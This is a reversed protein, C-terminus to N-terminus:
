ITRKEHQILNIKLNQRIRSRNDRIQQIQSGKALSINKMFSELNKTYNIIDFVILSTM